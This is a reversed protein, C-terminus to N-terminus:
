STLIMKEIEQPKSPKGFLYGQGKKCDERRLWDVQESVEVGEAVTDYHLTNCMSITSSLIVSNIGNIYPYEIFSKDLKVQNISYKSISSLTSYGTGFDDVSIQIDNDKLLQITELVMPNNTGLQTETIELMIESPKLSHEKLMQLVVDVFQPHSLQKVSVNVSIYFINLDISKWQQMQKCAERLVYTGLEVIKGTEEAIPIFTSPPVLGHRPHNWRLLAEAGVPNLNDLNVIPQYMLFFEQEIVAVKLDNELEDLNSQKLDNQFLCYGGEPSAKSKELAITAETLLEEACSSNGFLTSSMGINMRIQVKIDDFLFTTNTERILTTAFMELEEISKHKYLVAFEDSGIRAPLCNQHKTERELIIAIKQLILDGFHPGIGSNVKRFRHIDLHLVGVHDVLGDRSSALEESVQNVFAKRSILNTLEDREKPSFNAKFIKYLTYITLALSDLVLVFTFYATNSIFPLSLLTLSIVILLFHEKLKNYFHYPTNIRNKM